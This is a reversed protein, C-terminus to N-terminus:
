ILITNISLPFSFAFLCEQRSGEQKSAQWHLHEERVKRM